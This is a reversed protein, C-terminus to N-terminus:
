ERAKKWSLKKKEKAPPETWFTHEILNENSNNNIKQTKSLKIHQFHHRRVCVWAVRGHPVYAMPAMLISSAVCVMWDRQYQTGSPFSSDCVTRVTRTPLLVVYHHSPQSASLHSRHILNWDFHFHRAMYCDDANLAFFFFVIAFALAAASCVRLFVM